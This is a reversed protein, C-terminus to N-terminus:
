LFAKRALYRGGAHFFPSPDRWSFTNYVNRSFLISGLWGTLSIEGLRRLEKYAELDQSFDLWRYKTTYESSVSRSGGVLYEYAVAPVNVGSVAGLYHWLNFRANIELMYLRGDRSDKKIDIKFPGKFGLTRIIHRGVEVLEDDKVLQLFCSEGVLKPYTRIKRGCFFALVESDRGAFGHFSFISEDGGPIYEQVILSDKRKLFAPDALLAKGDRFVRGKGKGEFLEEFVESHQWEVKHKPKVIVPFDASAIADEADGDWGLTRPVPLGKMRTLVDFEGKHLVAAAIEADNLLFAYYKSLAERHRCLLSLTEDVGYFIPIRCGVAGTLYAGADLLAEVTRLEPTGSAPLILRGAAHRSALVPSHSDSTAVIVPISALGLPRVLNLGGRLLLAPPRTPKLCRSGISLGTLRSGRRRPENRTIPAFLAM